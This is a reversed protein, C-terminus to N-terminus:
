LAANEYIGTEVGERDRKIRLTKTTKKRPVRCPVMEERKRRDNVQLVTSVCPRQFTVPQTPSLALTM